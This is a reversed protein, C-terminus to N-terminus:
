EANGHHQTHPQGERCWRVCLRRGRGTRLAQANSERVGGGLGEHAALALVELMRWPQEDVPHPLGQTVEAAQLPNLLSDGVFGDITGLGPAPRRVTDQRAGPLGKRVVQAQAGPAALLGGLLTAAAFLIRSRNVSPYYHLLAPM